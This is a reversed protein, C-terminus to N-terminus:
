VRKDEKINFVIMALVLFASAGSVIYEMDKYIYLKEYIDHFKDIELNVLAMYIVPIFYIYLIGLMSIKEVPNWKIPSNTGYNDDIAFFARIFMYMGFILAIQVWAPYYGAIDASVNLTDLIDNGLLIIPAFIIAPMILFKGIHRTRKRALKIVIEGFPISLVVTVVMLIADFHSASPLAEVLKEILDTKEMLLDLSFVMIVTIIITAIPYLIGGTLLKMLLTSKEPGDNKVVLNDQNEDSAKPRYIGENQVFKNNSVYEMEVSGTPQMFQEMPQVLPQNVMPQNVMPALLSAQHVPQQAHTDPMPHLDNIMPMEMPAVSALQEYDSMQNQAPPLIPETVPQSVMPVAMPVVMAPQVYNNPQEMPQQMVPTPQMPSPEIGMGNGFISNNQFEATIGGPREANVLQPEPTPIPMPPPAGSYLSAFPDEITKRNYSPDTFGSQADVDIPQNAYPNFSNPDVEPKVPIFANQEVTPKTIISSATVKAYQIFDSKHEDHEPADDTYTVIVDVAINLANLQDAQLNMTSAQELFQNMEEVIETKTKKINTEIVNFESSFDKGVKYLSYETQFIMKITSLAAPLFKRVQGKFREEEEAQKRALEEPNTFTDNIEQLKQAHVNKEQFFLGLEQGM